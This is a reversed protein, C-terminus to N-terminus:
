AGEIREGDVTCVGVRHLWFKLKANQMRLNANEARLLAVEETLAERRDAEEQWLRTSEGAAYAELQQNM